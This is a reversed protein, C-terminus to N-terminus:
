TLPDAMLQSTEGQLQEEGLGAITGEHQAVEESGEQHHHSSSVSFMQQQEQSQQALQPQPSTPSSPDKSEDVM